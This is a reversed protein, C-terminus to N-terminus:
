QVGDKFRATSYLPFFFSVVLIILMYPLYTIYAGSFEERYLYALICIAPIANFIRQRWVPELCIWTCFLYAMLGGIFWPLSVWYNAMDIEAAYRVSLGIM